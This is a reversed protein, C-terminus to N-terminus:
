TTHVLYKAAGSADVLAGDLRILCRFSILDNQFSFEDSREFRIGGAIRVFYRSMDALVTSKAANAMAALSPDLFVPAGLMSAQSGAVTPSDAFTSGILEGTSAKLKRISGLTATRMMWALSDSRTYPEALSSYLDVLLDTGQGATAQVGFSTGTGSPGTVGLTAGTILGAPQGSGTGTILHPGFALGLSVAAQKTLFGLLDSNHDGALENSVQFFSAYKYAKLTTVGLTPDSETISGGEATLASSVFATSKPVQLDEGSDTSVVTAGAALVASSEVLHMVVQRYVSVPLAQTATSKLLDRRELGPASYGTEPQLEIPAPNKELIASRFADTLPKHANSLSPVPKAPAAGLLDGYTAQATASRKDAAALEELRADVEALDAVLATWRGDEDETFSRRADAAPQAIAGMNTVLQERREHLATKVTSM